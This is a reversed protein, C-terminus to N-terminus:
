WPHRRLRLRYLLPSGLRVGLHFLAAAFLIDLWGLAPGGRM